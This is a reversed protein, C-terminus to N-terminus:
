EASRFFGILYLVLLVVYGSSLRITPLTSYFRPNGFVSPSLWSPLRTLM